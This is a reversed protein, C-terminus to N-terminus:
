KGSLYGLLQQELEALKEPYKKNLLITEQPDNDLRYLETGQVTRVLKWPPSIVAAGGLVFHFFGLREGLDVEDKGTLMPLLSVGRRPADLEDPRVKYGAAERLTPWLDVLMTFEDIQQNPPITGPWQAVLPVRLGGEYVTSKGGRFQGNSGTPNNPDEGVSLDSGNDSTFILLTNSTLELENLRGILDGIRDDMHRILAIYDQNREGEVGSERVKDLWDERASFVQYQEGWLPTHVTNFSLYLFFPDDQNEEIFSIARDALLDTVHGSTQRYPSRGEFFFTDVLEHIVKFSYVTVGGYFGLWQEFGRDVPLFGPRVSLHWKGYAGTRYGAQSLYEPIITSSRPIGAKAPGGTGPIKIDRLFKGSLMSARTSSCVPYVHFNTFAAGQAAIQDINPTAINGSPAFASVDGYGMDDAVILIINPRAHQKLDLYKQAAGRTIEYVQRIELSELAERPASSFETYSVKGNGDLDYKPDQLLGNSVTDLLPLIVKRYDVLPASLRLAEVIATTVRNVKFIPTLADSQKGVGLVASCPLINELATDNVVRFNKGRITALYSGGSTRIHCYSGTHFRAARTLLIQGVPIDGDALHHPEDASIGESITEGALSALSVKAGVIPEGQATMLTDVRVLPTLINLSPELNALSVQEDSAFAQACILFLILTPPLQKM